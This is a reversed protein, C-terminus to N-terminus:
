KRADAQVAKVCSSRRESIPEQRWSRVAAERLSGLMTAPVGTEIMGFAVDALDTVNEGPEITAHL